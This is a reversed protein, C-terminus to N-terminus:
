VGAGVRDIAFDLISIESARKKRRHHITRKANGFAGRFSPSPTVFAVLVIEANRSRAVQVIRRSVARRNKCLLRSRKKLCARQPGSPTLLKDCNAKRWRVTSLAELRCLETLFAIWSASADCRLLSASLVSGSGRNNLAKFSSMTRVMIRSWPNRHTHLMCIRLTEQVVTWSGCSKKQTGEKNPCYSARCIVLSHSGLVSNTTSDEGAASRVKLLDTGGVLWGNLWFPLVRTVRFLVGSHIHFDWRWSPATM